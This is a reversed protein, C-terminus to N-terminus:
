RVDDAVRCMEAVSELHFEESLQESYLFLLHSCIALDFSRSEFPLEPLEGAVYRGSEHGITFDKLFQAMARLRARGLAEISHFERWVFADRNRRTQELVEPCVEKIRGRIEEASYRYLPDFSTVWAGQKTAEANFSAPGDGCGLIKKELDRESLALMRQYEVFSRGWPVVRDLSFAM